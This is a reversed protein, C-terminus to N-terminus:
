SLSVLMALMTVASGGGGAVSRSSVGVGVGGCGGAFHYLGLNGGGWMGLGPLRLSPVRKHRDISGRM